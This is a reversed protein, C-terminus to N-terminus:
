CSLYKHDLVQVVQELSVFKEADELDLTIGFENEIGLIFVMSIVSDWKGTTKQSCDDAITAPDVDMAEALVSRV